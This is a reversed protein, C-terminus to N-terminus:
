SIFISTRIGNSNCEQWEGCWVRLVTKPECRSSDRHLTYSGGNSPGALVTGNTVTCTYYDEGYLLKVVSHTGTWKFVATGCSPPCSLLLSPHATCHRATLHPQTVLECHHMCHLATCHLATCHSAVCHVVVLGSDNRPLLHVSAGSRRGTLM